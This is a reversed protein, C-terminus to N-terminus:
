LLTKKRWEKIKKHHGSLLVEPAKLGEYIEPKTYHPYEKKRNLIKSFSEEEHSYENGLVNPLLRSITDILIMAPLEGGTLVYKGISIEEDVLKDIVRQDIGEYRGCLLILEKDKSMREAKSQTFTKGKPSLYIVKGKNKKKAEKIADFLPQCTMLMGAGGGYPNDDVKKHKDQSFDRINLFDIKILNKDLARKIISDALYSDFLNPFLTLVTFHM